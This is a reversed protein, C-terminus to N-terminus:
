KIAGIRRIYTKVNVKINVDRYVDDWNDKIKNWINPHYKKLHEDINILDVNYKKQTTEILRELEKSIAENFSEEVEKLNDKNIFEKGLYYGRIQGELSINIDLNLKGDAKSKLKIKKEANEILLDIPHGEKYIVKNGRKYKGTLLKIGSTQASSLVNQFKFDKIICSNSLEVGKEDKRRTLLPLMINGKENMGKMFKNFNIPIINSNSDSNEILGVIYNHINKETDPEFDIYNKVDGDCAIVLMDRTIAPERQLYDVVEKITDPYQFLDKSLILLKLHGFSIDRSSKSIAKIYADEMSYSDVTINKERAEGGKEPTLESIDPYGYVVKLKKIYNDTFPENSEIEKIEKKREIDEGANIGLTSVFIKRDIEVKDWCGSIFFSIIVIFVGILKKKNM